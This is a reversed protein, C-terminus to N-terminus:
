KELVVKRSNYITVQAHNAFRQKLYNINSNKAHKHTNYFRKILGREKKTEQNNKQQLKENKLM